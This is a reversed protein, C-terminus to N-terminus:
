NVESYNRDWWEAVEAMGKSVDMGSARAMRNVFGWLYQRTVLVGHEAIMADVRPKMTDLSAFFEAKTM